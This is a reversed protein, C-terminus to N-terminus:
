FSYGGSFLVPSISLGPFTGLGLTEDGLLPHLLPQLPGQSSMKDKSCWWSSRHRVWCHTNVDESLPVPDPLIGLSCASGPLAPLVTSTHTM